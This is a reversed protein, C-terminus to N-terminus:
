QTFIKVLKKEVESIKPEKLRDISYAIISKDVTSIFNTRVFSSLRLSKDEMDEDSLDICYEDKKLRSSIPCVIVDDGFPGATIVAPRKKYESYDSYPYEMVVIDGKMFTEM